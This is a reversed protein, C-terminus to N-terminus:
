EIFLTLRVASVAPQLLLASTVMWGGGVAAAFRIGSLAFSLSEGDATCWM